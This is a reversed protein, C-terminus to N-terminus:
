NCRQKSRFAGTPRVDVLANVLLFSAAGIDMVSFGFEETKAFRFAPFM